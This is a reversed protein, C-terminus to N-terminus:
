HWLSAVFQGSGAANPRRGSAEYGWSNSLRYFLYVAIDKKFVLSVLSALLLIYSMLIFQVQSCSALSDSNGLRHWCTLFHPTPLSAWTPIRPAEASEAKKGQGFFWLGKLQTIRIQVSWHRVVSRNTVEMNKNLLSHGVTGTHNYTKLGPAAPCNWRFSTVGWHVVHCAEHSRCGDSGRVLKFVQKGGWGSHGAGWPVQCHDGREQHTNWWHRLLM